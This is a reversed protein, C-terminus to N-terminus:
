FTENANGSRSLSLSLFVSLSFVPDTCHGEDTGENDYPRDGDLSDEDYLSRRRKVDASVLFRSMHTRVYSELILSLVCACSHVLSHIYTAHVQVQLAHVRSSLSRHM